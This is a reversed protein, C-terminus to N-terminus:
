GADDGSSQLSFHSDSEGVVRCGHALYFALARPNVRLVRFRLALGLDRAEAQVRSLCAAGIGRSQFPPRVMLQHLYLSRPYGGTPQDYVATSVYGADAASAVIVRYRQRAWREAHRERERAEDWGWALEVYPGIAERTSRFVFDSDASTAERLQIEM